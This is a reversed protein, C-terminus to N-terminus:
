LLGTLQGIFITLILTDASGGISLNREIFLRDLDYLYKMGQETHSGGLKFYISTWEKMEALVDPTKARKILTSDELTAAIKMLTDLLRQTMTGFTAQLFPVAVEAVGPFGNVAEGRIGTLQYTQFQQEGATMAVRNSALDKEILGEVMRQIVRRVETMTASGDKTSYAIATVWIGLSFIAGKHTNVNNTANFMTQEALVGEARLANFLLKLDSGEFNRGLKFAKDLYSKLSLTSDIFMFMNMDTHSGMSVPDVLGPKPNLSVEYLLGKLANNVVTEQSEKEFILEKSTAGQYMQNIVEYGEDLTHNQEKACVKAPKGCILCLRPGFGLDERSLQYDAQGNAMVDIDFLRGLVYTEEFLIATKKVAALNGDVTIFAEPGTVREAFLMEYQSNCEIGAVFTQWGDMFIKQLIDNNKIPGPINLKASIVIKDSNTVKLKDQLRSRWERNDLVTLLDVAEGIDFISM